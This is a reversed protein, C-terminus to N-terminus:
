IVTTSQHDWTGSVIQFIKISRTVTVGPAPVTTNPLVIVSTVGPSTGVTQGQFNVETVFDENSVNLTLTDMEVPLTSLSSCLIRAQTGNRYESVPAIQNLINNIIFNDDIGDSIDLSLVIPKLNVIADTYGKTAADTDDQPVNLGRIRFSNSLQIDGDTNITLGSTSTITNGTISLTPPDSPLGPGINLIQLKGIENVGDVAVVAQTLRFTKIAGGPNIQEIVPVGDIAYYKGQALNFSESSDWTQSSNIWVLTKDVTGKLILGGGNATIDTPVGPLSINGLIINKNIVELDIATVTEKNGTVTLNGDVVLNGGVVVESDSQRQYLYFKRNTTNIYLPQEIINNRRVLFQIDENQASNSLTVKDDIVSLAAAAESGFILGDNKLITIPERVLNAINTKLYNESPEGDLQEANLCTTNFKLNPLSPTFGQVINGSFGEVPNLPSFAVNSFFGLVVGGNWLVTVTRLQNTTDVVTRVDLGSRGQALTHAPAITINSEGDWFYLQKFTTNYWLDGVGLFTPQKSDIQVASVPVFDNGNFVKLNGASVDFWLQGRLANTPRRVDAFNELLKVFNQNLSEGFGSFNKGILTLDTSLTDLQGDAVAAIITGDTKTIQYAM